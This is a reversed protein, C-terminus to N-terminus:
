VGSPLDLLLLLSELKRVGGDGSPGALWLPLRRLCPLLFLRRPRDLDVLTGKRPLVSSRVAAM